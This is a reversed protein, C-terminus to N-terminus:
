RAPPPSRRARAASPPSSRRKAWSSARRVRGPAARARVEDEIHPLTPLVVDFPGAIRAGAAGDGRRFGGDAARDVSRRSGPLVLVLPPEAARRRAEEANPGCNARAARDASPRCLRLAARRAARAGGARVAAAGARLRCLRADGARPGAAVGMGVPQRLRCRCPPCRAGCGARSATPSTPATSSSSRTPGRRSSRRRRDARIRASLTPLRALVPLIGMVAVDALPFLSKLGEAAM